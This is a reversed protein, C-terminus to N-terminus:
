NSKHKMIIFLTHSPRYSWLCIYMHRHTHRDQQKVTKDGGSICFMETTRNSANMDDTNLKILTISQIIHEAHKCSEYTM